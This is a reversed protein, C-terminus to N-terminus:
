FHFTSTCKKSCIWSSRMKIRNQPNIFMDPPPSLVESDILTSPDTVVKDTPEEPAKEPVVELIEETNEKRLVKPKEVVKMEKGSRLTIVNVNEPQNVELQSSLKGSRQSKLKSVTTALQSIQTRLTQMGMNTKKIFNYPTKNCNYLTM